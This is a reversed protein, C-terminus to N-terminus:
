NPAYRTRYGTLTIDVTPSVPPSVVQVDIRLAEPSPVALGAVVPSTNMTVATVTVTARYNPLLVTAVDDISTIGTMTFGSYDWVNDLPDSASGRSEGATRAGDQVAAATSCGGLVSSATATAAGPDDPDCYTFPQLMVEELLSEAVAIAQKRVMPDASRTASTVFVSLIGALGVGIVVIFLILEFLSIGAQRRNRITAERTCM